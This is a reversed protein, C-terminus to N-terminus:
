RQLPDLHLPRPHPRVEGLELQALDASRPLAAEQVRELAGQLDLAQGDVAGVHAQEEGAQKYMWHAFGELNVSEFYAAMSLYLYSSYWENKIQDQYLKELQKDM